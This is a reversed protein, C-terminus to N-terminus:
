GEVEWLLHINSSNPSGVKVWSLTINTSDVAITATQTGGSADQIFVIDTTSDGASCGGAAGVSVSSRSMTTGNYIGNSVVASIAAAGTAWTARISTKRPVKGLGHAITQDGSAADGARTTTGNKYTVINSIPSLLQFNTGDYIVSVLQNAKIDNDALDENYNKKITKAGLSNVNLTAAGTNATNAKFLVVMGTTYATPVPSLTIVYTDSVGADAAYKEANIQLGTQTVYKNGTGVAISTDDGVLANKEGSTPIYGVQAATPVRTDNDGVAIPNTALVPAVSLKTIGKTVDSADPAGAIAVGDVYSKNAVQSNATPNTASVPPNSFTNTGAWTQDNALIGLSNYINSSNTIRFITGGSHAKKNGAVTTYPTIFALGRVVGTLTATGDANQTIGTFSINEERSTAPELTGYGIVGFSAMALNVSDPTKMTQLIISTATSTIGSGALKYDQCQPFYTAM